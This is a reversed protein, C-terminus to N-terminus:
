NTKFKIKLFNKLDQATRCFIITEKTTERSLAEKDKPTKKFTEMCQKTWSKVSIFKCDVKGDKVVARVYRLKQDM